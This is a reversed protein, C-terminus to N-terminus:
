LLVLEVTRVLQHPLEPLELAVVAVALLVEQVATAALLVTNYLEQFEQIQVLNHQLVAPVLITILLLEVVVQDVQDQQGVPRHTVVLVPVVM